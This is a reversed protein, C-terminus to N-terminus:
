SFYQMLDQNKYLYGRINPPIKKTRCLEKFKKDMNIKCFPSIYITNNTIAVAIKHSIVVQKNSIIEQKTKSSIIIKRKKLEKDIFRIAINLDNNFKCVFLQKYHKITNNTLLSAIDKQIYQFSKKIGNQYKSILQNSIQHRFQNRKYKTDYNTEDIFYKIKNKDLYEQLSEKSYSLLPKLLYYNDNYFVEQMGLLEVVGAGKTLQMLFWELQDNLQHATILAEYNNQKIIKDFFDYRFERAKAETFKQSLYTTTYCKKNYKKALSKAYQIELKSQDRQNYDVIAIDFDVNKELLLFFLATSDVGGSFALLNKKTKIDFNFINM